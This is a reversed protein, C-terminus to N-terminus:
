AGDPVEKRDRLYLFLAIMLLPTYSDIYSLENEQLNYKNEIEILIKERLKDDENCYTEIDALWLDAQIDTIGCTPAIINDIIDYAIKRLNNYLEIKSNM